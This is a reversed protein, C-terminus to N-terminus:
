ESEEDEEEDEKGEFLDWILLILPIFELVKELLKKINPFAM